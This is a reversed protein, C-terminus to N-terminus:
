RWKNLLSENSNKLVVDANGVLSIENAKQNILEQESEFSGTKMWEKIADPDFTFGMKEYFIKPNDQPNEPNAGAAASIKINAKNNEIAKQAVYYMLVSGIGSGPQLAELDELYVADEAITITAQGTSSGAVKIIKKPVEQGGINSVTDEINVQIQENSDQKTLTGINRSGTTNISESSPGSTAGATPESTVGSLGSSSSRPTLESTVGSKRTSNVNGAILQAHNILDNLRDLQNATHTSQLVENNVVSRVASLAPAVVTGALLALGCIATPLRFKRYSM